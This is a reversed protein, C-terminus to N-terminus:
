VSGCVGWCVGRAGMNSVFAEQEMPVKGILFHPIWAHATLSFYTALDLGIEALGSVLEAKIPIQLALCHQTHAPFQTGLSTCRVSHHLV